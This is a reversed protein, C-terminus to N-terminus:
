HDYLKVEICVVYNDAPEPMDLVTITHNGVPLAINQERTMVTTRGDEEEIRRVNTIIM